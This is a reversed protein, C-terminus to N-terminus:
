GDVVSKIADLIAQLADIIVSPDVVDDDFDPDTMNEIFDIFESLIDGLLPNVVSIAKVIQEAIDFIDPLENRGFGTNIVSHAITELYRVALKIDNNTAPANAAAAAANVGGQSKFGFTTAAAEALAGTFEFYDDIHIIFNYLPDNKLVTGNLIANSVQELRKAASNFHEELHNIVLILTNMARAYDRLFEAGEQAATDMAHAVAMLMVYEIGTNDKDVGSAFNQKLIELDLPDITDSVIQDINSDSTSIANEIQPTTMSRLAPMLQTILVTPDNSHLLEDHYVAVVEQIEELIREIPSNGTGFENFFSKHVRSMNKIVKQLKVPDGQNFATQMMRHVQNSVVSDGPPIPDTLPPQNPQDDDGNVDAHPGFVEHIANVIGDAVDEAGHIFGSIVSKAGNIIKEVMEEKSSGDALDPIDIRIADALSPPALVGAAQAQKAVAADMNQLLERAVLLIHDDFVDALQSSAVNRPNTVAQQQQQQQQLLNNSPVAAFAAAPLLALGALYTVKM